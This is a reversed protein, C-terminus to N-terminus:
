DREIVLYAPRGGHIEPKLYLDHNCIYYDGIKGHSASKCDEPLVGLYMGPKLYNTINPPTRYIGQTSNGTVPYLVGGKSKMSIDSASADVYTAVVILTLALTTMVIVKGVMLDTRMIIEKKHKNLKM